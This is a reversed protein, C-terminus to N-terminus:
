SHIVTQRQASRIKSSSASVNLHHNKNTAGHMKIVDCKGKGVFAVNNFMYNNLSGGNGFRVIQPGPLDLTDKHVVTPM